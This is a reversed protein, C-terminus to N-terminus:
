AAKLKAMSEALLWLAKNLKVDQDIGNVERTSVRRGRYQGPERPMRGQLGGRIANEQLVNFTTWLDPSQDEHRRVHLFQSAQIPSDVKGDSDGLRLVRASEAMALRETPNLQIQSWQEPSALARQSHELVRWSGEIIEPIAKGTHHVRVEESKGVPICCGNLCVVRLLGSMLQYSSTGDHANVLITEPIIDDRKVTDHHRLRLMHKTFEAKGPIRSKSQKASYVQWGNKRYEALLARSDVYVFRSSRSEHPHDAFVSPAVRAIEEDSMPLSDFRTRGAFSSRAQMFM